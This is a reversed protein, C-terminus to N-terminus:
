ITKRPDAGRRAVIAFDQPGFLVINLHRADRSPDDLRTEEGYPHLRVIEVDSFGRNAVLFELLAPTLPNRHTPDNYFTTAGVRMTEPNPTELIFVGGPILARLAEDLFDVLVNFPLHEVVHFATIASLGANPLQMLHTLLDCRRADLGRSLAREVMMSNLDIGYASLGAEKLLELWEGRGCGIDLIPTQASGAGALRLDEVYPALRQKIDEHGGRLADELAVYLSDFRQDLITQAPTITADSNQAANLSTLRRQQFLVERRVASIASEANALRLETESLNQQRLLASTREVLPAVDDRLDSVDALIDSVYKQVDGIEVLAREVESQVEGLSKQFDKLQRQSRALESEM